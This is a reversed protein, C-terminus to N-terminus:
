VAETLEVGVSKRVDGLIQFLERAPFLWDELSGPHPDSSAWGTSMKWISTFINRLQQPGTGRDLLGTSSWCIKLAKQGSM